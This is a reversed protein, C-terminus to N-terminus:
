GRRYLRFSENRDGPRRDEWIKKWGPGPSTEPGRGSAQVLLLRCESARASGAPRTVIGDFYHLSARQANGLDRGVICSPKKPLAQALSASLMRYSKGYEIWQLWLLNVLCCTLAMGAAWNVTGRQPARPTALVFWLWAVSVVLACAVAPMSLQYAFGPELKVIQRALRPPWGTYQAIWGLWILGALLTFTIMSFWDFANAAGRRLTGAAPTALLALPLLLPLDSAGHAGRTTGVLIAAAAVSSLPLLIAPQALSKRRSWLTWLALPWAPWAFWSLTTAHERLNQTLREVPQLSQLENSWWLEFSEPYLERVLLPWTSSLAAAIALALALGVFSKRSRWPSGILPAALVPASTLVLAHLGDALFGLGIALGSIAGGSYPRRQMIAIGYLGGALAALVAVQPQTEHAHVLLGLCGITHLPAIGRAAEGHLERSAGAMAALMLAALIASTMRAADHLPILWGFAKACAAALWYYLPPNDLFPEGAIQPVLWQGGTLMSFAVGFHAADEPKWPDHGIVGPLLYLACLLVLAPGVPPFRFPYRLLSLM